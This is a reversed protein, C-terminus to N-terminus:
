SGRYSLKGFNFGEFKPIQKLMSNSIALCVCSKVPAQLKWTSVNIEYNSCVKDFNYRCIWKIRLIASLNEDVLENIELCNEIPQVKLELLNRTDELPMGLSRCHRM